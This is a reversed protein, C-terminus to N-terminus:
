SLISCQICKRRRFRDEIQELSKGKTEFVFVIVFVVSALNIVSYGWWVYWPRFLETFDIYTGSVLVAFSWNLCSAAGSALGRVRLPLLEGLLIGPIPGWGITFASFFLVLSVIALPAYHSNCDIDPVASNTLTDFSTNTQSCLSPRTIYFHVGLMLTSAFGGLGSAILLIKRGFTDVLFVAVVTVVLQVTGNAYTSTLRYHKVGASKYISSSYSTSALIGGFQQFFQAGIIISLPAFTARSFLMRLTKTFHQDCTKAIDNEIEALERTIGSTGGRLSKLTAIARSRQGHVLLWRPTEPAPLVLLMSIVSLGAIVLASDYYKFQPFSGLLFAVLLGASLLLQIFFTLM